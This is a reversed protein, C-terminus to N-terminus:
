WKKLPSTRRREIFERYADVKGQQNSADKAKAAPDRWEYSEGLRKLLIPKLQEIDFNSPDGGHAEVLDVYNAGLEEAELQSVRFTEFIFSAALGALTEASSM